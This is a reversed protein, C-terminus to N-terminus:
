KIKEISFKISNKKSAVLEFPNGTDIKKDWNDDYSSNHFKHFKNSGVKFPPVEKAKYWFIKDTINKSQIRNDIVMVGYNDTVDTFVQQFIDFTPFCVLTTNM